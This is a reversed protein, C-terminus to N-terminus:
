QLQPTVKHSGLGTACSAALFWANGAIEAVTHSWLRESVDELLTRGHSPFSHNPVITKQAQVDRGELLFPVLDPMLRCDWCCRSYPVWVDDEPCTSRRIHYIDLDNCICRHAVQVSGM